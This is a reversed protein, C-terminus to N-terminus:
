EGFARSLAVVSKDCFEFANKQGSNTAVVIALDKEPFIWLLSFWMTNSGTMQLCHGGFRQLDHVLWGGIGHSGSHPLTGHLKEFSAPDSLVEGTTRQLHFRAFTAWDRISAHITGAPGIADPNDGKPEPAIPKKGSHGWPQDLRNPSCPARFGASTMGLPVFIREGVLLEWPKGALTELMVGAVAYGQNSYVTQEGPSYSPKAKLLSSVFAMRQDMAALKGQDKWARIWSFTSPNGPLGGVHALLQELTVDEYGAHIEKVTDGLVDGITTQWTLLGDEVLAAALTATFMKTCSGLHYKDDQTVPTPNGRKRVGVAGFARIEDGKVVAGALSPLKSEKLIPQLIAAVDPMPDLVEAACTTIACAAATAILGIVRRRTKMGVRNVAQEDYRL